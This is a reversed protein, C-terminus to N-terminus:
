WVRAVGDYSGTALVEGSSSWELTTVDKNKKDATDHGHPLLISHSTKDSNLTWIRASADGSGTAILNTFKPNWACMFVESTHQALEMVDSPNIATRKDEEEILTLKEDDIAVNNGRRDQAGRKEGPMMPQNNQQQIQLQQQLQQRQGAASMLAAIATARAADESGGGGGGGLSAQKQVAQQRQALVAQIEARQRALDAAENHTPDTQNQFTQPVPRNVQQMAQQQQQQQQVAVNMAIDAGGGEVEMPSEKSTVKKEKEEEENAAAKNKKKKRKKPTVVPEVAAEGVELSEREGKMQVEDFPQNVNAGIKRREEEMSIRERTLKEKMEM